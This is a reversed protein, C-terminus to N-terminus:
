CKLEKCSLIPKKIKNQSTNLGHFIAHLILVTCQTCQKHAPSWPFGSNENFPGGTLINCNCACRSPLPHAKHTITLHM